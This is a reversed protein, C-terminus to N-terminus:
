EDEEEDDDEEDEDDDEEDHEEWPEGELPDVHEWAAQAEELARSALGAAELATEVAEERKKGSRDEDPNVSYAIAEDIAALADAAASRGAALRAQYADRSEHTTVSRKRRPM